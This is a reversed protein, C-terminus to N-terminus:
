RSKPVNSFITFLEEVSTLDDLNKIINIIKESARSDIRKLALKRFKNLMEEQSLPNTPDGKPTNVRTSYVKGNTTKVEIESPISKPFFSDLEPSYILDVKDAIRLIEPDNLGEETFHDPILEGYAIIAGIVFPLSYQASEMTKPRKEGLHSGISFIKVAIRDITERNVEEYKRMLEMVGEIAPHTWRCSPFPKFYINKIEFSEGFMPVSSKTFDITSTIGTFGEQALLTASVGVLAGWGSCYQTMPMIGIKLDDIIPSVPAFTEAIAMAQETKESDLSLLKATAAAAGISGWRGSGPFQAFPSSETRHLDGSRIAVEYGCILAEILQRGSSRNREAVACAAPIVVSGPHGAAMRHGDDINLASGITGHIFTANLISTKEGTPWLTSEKSGPFLNSFKLIIEGTKTCTGGLVAGIFDLLCNKAGQITKGDLDNFKLDKIFKVAKKM